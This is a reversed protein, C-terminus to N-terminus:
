QKKGGNLIYAEHSCSIKEEKNMGADGAELVAGDLVLAVLWKHSMLVLITAIGLNVYAILTFYVSFKLSKM